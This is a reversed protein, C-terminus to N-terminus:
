IFPLLSSDTADILLANNDKLLACGNPSMHSYEACPDSYELLIIYPNLSTMQPQSMGRFPKSM